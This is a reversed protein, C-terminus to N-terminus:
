KVDDELIAQWVESGEDSRTSVHSVTAEQVDGFAWFSKDVDPFVPDLGTLPGRYLARNMLTVAEARTIQNNPRFKGDPYGSLLNNRYLAEIANAAWNGDLDTFHRNVAPANDIKLFRSLVSALEGRTVPADPRFTNDAYGNFYGQSTAVQIYGAAWHGERIDKFTSTGTPTEGSLRAVIAALEARSLSGASHFKGDPYGLIYRQHKLQGFRDSFVQVYVSANKSTGGALLQGDLKYTAQEAQILGWKVEIKFSGTGGAPLSSVNWSVTRGEVTGGGANVLETGEPLTVKVVAGNVASSTRNNYDITITSTAGEKVQNKDISLNLALDGQPAPASASTSGSGSSSKPLSQMAFDFAVISQGVHIIGDKIYSDAGDANPKTQRTDYTYYGAKKAIIYYDGEPYVMWAYEGAADTDQPNANENPAFGPLGPLSVLANPTRGKQKNLDTDAWYLQVDVGSLVSGNSSDTVVGYPDILSYVISTQGDETFNINVISSPGALTEGGSTTLQYTVEYKGKPVNDLSFTGDENIPLQQEFNSGDLGKLVAFATGNGFLAGVTPNSSSGAPPAIFLQGNLANVPKIIEGTQITGITVGKTQTLVAQQGGVQVPTQIDLVYKYDGRPVPIQYSGDEGTTVETSYDIIGDNNFDSKVIITAGAVPKGSVQDIIIGDIAAPYYDIGISAQANPNDNGDKTQVTVTHHIPTTGSLAEPTYEWVASGKEDTVKQISDGSDLTFTVPVNAAPNGQDDTVKATVTVPTKGDALVSDPTVTLEVKYQQEQDRDRVYVTETVTKGDYSATIQAVGPSVATVKGNADVTAVDPNSSTYTAAGTVDHISEDAATVATVKPTHQEGPQLTVSSPDILLDRLSSAITTVSVPASPDSEIGNSVSTIKYSQTTEPKLGTLAFHLDTLDKAVPNGADDYLNYKEAGPVASWTLEASTSTENGVQLTPPDITVKITAEATKDNYVAKIVTTGAGVATILGNEDITAVNPDTISIVTNPDLTVDTADEGSYVSTVVTQHTETLKLEYLQQDLRLGFDVPLEVENSPPSEMTGEGTEVVATVTFRAPDEPTVGSVEYQTGTVDSALLVGDKYVNYHTAGPVTDWKLINGTEPTDGRTLTPATPIAAEAYAGGVTVVKIIGTPPASDLDWTTEAQGSEDAVFQTEALVGSLTSFTLPAKPVPNGDPDLATGIVTYIGSEGTPVAKIKVSTPAQKYVYSPNATDIPEPTNTFYWSVIDHTEMSGGTASTFGAYVGPLGKFINDLDINSTQLVPTEPRNENQSLYVKVVKNEGDYDIWSYLDEGGSLSIDNLNTTYWTPNTNNVDGNMALGIYNASPDNVPSANKYTDYKVAFSPTIGGYGIGQGVSGANNSQAQVTFTIGDAPSSKRNDGNLRFKFFTSFSYHNGAAILKKNFATGFQNGQAETLRLIQRDRTDTVIRSQGNLAFLGVQKSNSFNDIKYTVWRDESGTPDAYVAGTMPQLTAILICIVLLLPKFKISRMM